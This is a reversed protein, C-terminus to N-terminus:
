KKTLRLCVPWIIAGGIGLWLALWLEESTVLSINVALQVRLNQALQGACYQLMGFSGIAALLLVLAAGYKGFVVMLAALLFALLIVLIVCHFITIVQELQKDDRQLQQNLAKILYNSFVKQVNNTQPIHLNKATLEGNAEYTVGLNYLHSYSLDYRYQEPLQRLIKNELGTKQALKLSARLEDNTASKNLAVHAVQRVDPVGVTVPSKLMLYGSTGIVIVMIVRVIWAFIKRM